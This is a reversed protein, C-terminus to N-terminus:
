SKEFVWKPAALQGTAATETRQM